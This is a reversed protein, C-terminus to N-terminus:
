TGSSIVISSELRHEITHKFRQNKVLQNAKKDQLQESTCILIVLM